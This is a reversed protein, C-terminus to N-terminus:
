HDLWHDVRNIAKAQLRAMQSLVFLGHVSEVCNERPPVVLGLNRSTIFLPEFPITALKKCEKIM